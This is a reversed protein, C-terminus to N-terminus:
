SIYLNNNLLQQINHYKDCLMKFNCVDEINLEFWEGHTNIHSYINHLTTEIKRAYKSEYTEVLLIKYPCGTQLENIRNQVNKSTYGIKYLERDNGVMKILYVFNKKDM